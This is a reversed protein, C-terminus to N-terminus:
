LGPHYVTSNGLRLGVFEDLSVIECGELEMARTVERSDLGSALLEDIRKAIMEVTTMPKAPIRALM